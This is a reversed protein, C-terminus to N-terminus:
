AGQLAAVEAKLEDVQASLEKVANILVPVLKLYDMQYDSEKEDEVPNHQLLTMSNAEVGAAELATEVDQAILGTMIPADDDDIKYNYTVPNLSSVFNLGLQLDQINKKFNRDSPLSNANTSITGVQTSDKYFQLIEGDSTLRKFYAVTGGDRIHYSTGVGFMVHGAANFGSESKGILLDGSSNIRMRESLSGTTGTSFKLASYGRDFQIESTGAGSNRNGLILTSTAGSIRFGARDTSGSDAVTLNEDPTRGIGVAGGSNIHFRSTGSNRIVFENQSAVVGGGMDWLTTGASNKWAMLASGGDSAYTLSLMESNGDIDLKANPSTTGIGVNGATDISLAFSGAVNNFIGFNASVNEWSGIEWQANATRFLTSASQAAGGDIHLCTSSSTVVSAPSTTGIGVDGDADITIATSTANDDIGTSTFTGTTLSTPNTGVEIVTGSGNETYLRKNTLDLAPEGQVLDSAAPAGSGNKLKITTM